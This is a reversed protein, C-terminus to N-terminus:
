PEIVRLPHGDLWASINEVTDRYFTEYTQRTVFGIHPTTLVNDLSRFPHDAPLPESDYTDLAAGAITRRQLADILAAEDILPGRSTNVLYATPKMLRLEAAGVIGRTRPSLVLHVTVIDAEHFLDHKDVWRAGHEGAMEPTLNQSWATVHMGFAQAVRAVRGGLRGLGLIGLTKGELDGGLATQWGGQRISAYEAPVQRVMALILAWTLESTGHSVYGTGCVLVGREKAAAVDISANRQATSAILKLNPLRELVARTLPTRERMVCVVDFPQLRAVLADLDFLHDRFVTLRARAQLDSWDAMHLAIGQYDDLIAVRTMKDTPM